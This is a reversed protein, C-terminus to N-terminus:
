MHLSPRWVRWAENAWPRQTLILLSKCTDQLQLRKADGASGKLSGRPYNFLLVRPNSIGPTDFIICKQAKLPCSSMHTPSNHTHADFTLIKTDFHLVQGDLHWGQSCKPIGFVVKLLWFADSIIDQTGQSTLTPDKSSCIAGQSVFPSIRPLMKSALLSGFNTFLWTRFCWTNSSNNKMIQQTDELM